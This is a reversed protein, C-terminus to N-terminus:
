VTVQNYLHGFLRMHKDYACKFSVEDIREGHRMVVLHQRKTAPGKPPGQPHEPDDIKTPSERALQAQVGSSVYCPQLGKSPVSVGQLTTMYMTFLLQALM